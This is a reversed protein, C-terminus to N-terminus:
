RRPEAPTSKAISLNNFDFLDLHIRCSMALSGVRKNGGRNKEVAYDM